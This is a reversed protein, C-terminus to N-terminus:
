IIKPEPFPMIFKGGFNKHKAMLPEAYNWALILLYDPKYKEIDKTSLVPFQKGPTFRGVKLDNDDFVYEIYKELEYAYGMLTAKAPWGLVGITKGSQKIDSLLIKMTEINNNTNQIFLSLYENFRNQELWIFMALNSTGMYKGSRNCVYIRISGGHTPTHEVDYIRM